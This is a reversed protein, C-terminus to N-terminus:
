VKIAGTAIFIINSNIVLSRNDTIVPINLRKEADKAFDPNIEAGTIETNYADIIGKIIASAMKGCGIFGLKVNM